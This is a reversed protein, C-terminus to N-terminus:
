SGEDLMVPLSVVNGRYFELLLDALRRPAYGPLWELQTVDSLSWGGPSGRRLRIVCRGLPGRVDVCVEEGEMWVAEARTAVEAM